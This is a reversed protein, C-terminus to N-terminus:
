GVITQVAPWTVGTGGNWISTLQADTLVKFVLGMEDTSTDWSDGNGGFGGTFSFVGQTADPTPTTSGLVNWAGNNFKVSVNDSDSPDYKVAVLQWLGPTTNPFLVSGVNVSGWGMVNFYLGTGPATIFYPTLGLMVSNSPDRLILNASWIFNSTGNVGPVLGSNVKFWFWFTFGSGTKYKLQPIPSYPPTGTSLYGVWGGGGGSPYQLEVANGFIGTPDLIPPANPPNTDVNLLLGVYKDVKNALINAEDFTWYFRAPAPGTTISFDKACANM